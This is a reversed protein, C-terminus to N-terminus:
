TNPIPILGPLHIGQNGSQSIGTEKGKVKVIGGVM